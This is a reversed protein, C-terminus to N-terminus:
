KSSRRCPVKFLASSPGFVVVTIPNLKDGQVGVEFHRNLNIDLLFVALSLVLVLAGGRYYNICYNVACDLRTRHHFIFIM